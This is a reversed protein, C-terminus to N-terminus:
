PARGKRVWGEERMKNANCAKMAAPAQPWTFPETVEIAKPPCHSGPFVTSESSEAVGPHSPHM